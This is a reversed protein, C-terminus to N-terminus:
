PRGCAPFRAQVTAGEDHHKYLRATAAARVQFAYHSFLEKLILTDKQTTIMAQCRLLWDEVVKPSLRAASSRVYMFPYGLEDGQTDPNVQLM